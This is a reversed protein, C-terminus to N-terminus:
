ERDPQRSPRIMSTPLIKVEDTTNFTPTEEIFLAEKLWLCLEKDVKGVIEICTLLADRTPRTHHENKFHHFIAGEQQHWSIRKSLRMTTMGIYTGPCGQCPCTCCYVVMYEKMPDENPKTHNRMLNKTKNNRYYMVLKTKKSTDVPAANNITIRRLIKKEEKYKSSM